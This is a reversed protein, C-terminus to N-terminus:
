RGERRADVCRSRLVRRDRDNEVTLQVVILFEFATSRWRADAERRLGIGFDQYM